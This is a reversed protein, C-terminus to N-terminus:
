WLNFAGGIAVVILTAVIALTLQMCASLLADGIDERHPM